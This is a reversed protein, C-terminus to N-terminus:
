EDLKGGHYALYYYIRGDIEIGSLYQNSTLKMSLRDSYPIVSIQKIKKSTKKAHTTLPAGSLELKGVNKLCLSILATDFQSRSLKCRLCLTERIKPIEVYTQRMFLTHSYNLKRYVDILESKFDINQSLVPYIEGTLVSRQVSGIREAWDSVIDISARNFHPSGKMQLKELITDLPASQQFCVMEYYALYHDHNLFLCHITKWDNNIVAERFTQLEFTPIYSYENKELLKLDCMEDLIEAARSKSCSLFNEVDTITVISMSQTLRAIDVIRGLNVPRMCVRM